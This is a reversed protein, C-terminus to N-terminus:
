TPEDQQVGLGKLHLPRPLLPGLNGGHAVVEPVLGPVVDEDAGLPAFGFRQAVAEVGVVEAFTPGSGRAQPVQIQIWPNPPGPNPDPSKPSRSNSRPIQPEGNLGLIQPIGSKSGLIQPIGTKSGFIGWFLFFFNGEFTGFILFFGFGFDGFIGSLEGFEEFGEM